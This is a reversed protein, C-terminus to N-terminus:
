LVDIVHQQNYQRAIDLPTKGNNDVAGRDAGAELLATAAETEDNFAASHLPTWGDVDRADPDASSAALLRVVAPSGGWAALHLPTQQFKDRTGVDAGAARLRRAMEEYGKIGAWHLPTWENMDSAGVNVGAALLAQLEELSGQEAAQILRRGKEEESLTRLLAIDVSDPPPRHPQTPVGPTTASRSLPPPRGATPLLQRAACLSLAHCLTDVHLGPPLIALPRTKASPNSLLRSVEAQDERQSHLTGGMVHLLHAKVFDVVAQRLSDSSRRVQLVAAAAAAGGSVQIEQQKQEESADSVAVDADPIRAYASPKATDCDESGFSVVGIQKFGDKTKIVLASGSDGSCGGTHEGIACLTSEVVNGTDFFQECVNNPIVKVQTWQLLDAPSRMSLPADKPLFIVAVDNISKGFANFEPHARAWTAEATWITTDDNETM